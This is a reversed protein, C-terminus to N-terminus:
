NTFWLGCSQPSVTSIITKPNIPYLSHSGLLHYHDMSSQYWSGVACKSQAVWGQLLLHLMVWPLWLLSFAIAVLRDPGSAWSSQCFSSIEKGHSWCDVATYSTDYAARWTVTPFRASCTASLTYFEHFMTHSCCHKQVALHAIATNPLLM